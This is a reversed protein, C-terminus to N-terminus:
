SLSSLELKLRVLIFVWRLSSGTPRIALNGANCSSLTNRLVPVVRKESDLCKLKWCQVSVVYLYEFSITQLLYYDPSGNTLCM